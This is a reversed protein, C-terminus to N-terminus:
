PAGGTNNKELALGEAKAIAEEIPIIITEYVRQTINPTTKINDNCRDDFYKSVIKCAELLADRQKRLKDTCMPCDWLKIPLNNVHGSNCKQGTTEYKAELEAVRDDLVVAAISIDDDENEQERLQAAIERAIKLTM